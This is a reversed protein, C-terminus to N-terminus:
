ALFAIAKRLSSAVRCPVPLPGLGWTSLVGMTTKRCAWGFRKTLGIAPRKKDCNRVRIKSLKQHTFSRGQYTSENEKLAMDVICGNKSYAQRQSPDVRLLGGGFVLSTQRCTHLLKTIIVQPYPRLQALSPGERSFHRCLNAFGALRHEFTVYFIASGYSPINGAQSASRKDSFDCLSSNAAFEM